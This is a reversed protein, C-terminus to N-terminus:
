QPPYKIRRKLNFRSKTNKRFSGIKKRTKMKKLLNNYGVIEVKYKKIEELVNKIPWEKIVKAPHQSIYECHALRGDKKFNTSEVLYLFGPQNLLEIKKPMLEDIYMRLSNDKAVNFYGVALEHGLGFTMALAFPIDDTAFVVKEGLFGSTHPQLTKIQGISSGHWLQKDSATM